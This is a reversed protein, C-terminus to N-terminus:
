KLAFTTVAEAELVAPVAWGEGTCVIASVQAQNFRYVYDHASWDYYMNKTLATRDGYSDPTQEDYPEGTEPDIVGTYGTDAALAPACLALLMLLCLIRKGTKM